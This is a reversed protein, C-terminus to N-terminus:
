GMVGAAPATAPKQQASAALAPFGAAAVAHAEAWDEWGNSLCRGARNACFSAQRQGRQSPRVHAAQDLARRISAGTRGLIRRADLESRAPPATSRDGV